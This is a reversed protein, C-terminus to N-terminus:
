GNDTFYWRVEGYNVQDFKFRKPLEDPKLIPWHWYNREPCQERDLVGQEVLLYIEDIYKM